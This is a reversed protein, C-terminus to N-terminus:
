QSLGASFIGSFILFLYRLFSRVQITFMFLILFYGYKVSKLPAYKRLEGLFKMFMSRTVENSRAGTPFDRWIRFNALWLFRIDRSYFYGQLSLVAAQGSQM